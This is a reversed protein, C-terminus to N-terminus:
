VHSTYKVQLCRLGEERVCRIHDETDQAEIIDGRQDEYDDHNHQALVTPWGWLLIVLIAVTLLILSGRCIEDLIVGEIIVYGFYWEVFVDVFLM